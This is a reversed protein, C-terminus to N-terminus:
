ADTCSENIDRIIARVSQRAADLGKGTDIVYNARLRKDADPMQRGLIADLKQVTMGPRALVRTRQTQVDATVVIVKDVRTEGHTEYLLPIDIIALTAGSKRTQNIFHLEKERVLPHILAELRKLEDPKGFVAASLKIRDVKGNVVTGPFAAEIMPGANTEYLEHVAADASYVPIGEDAFMALTTSKGMGISGTLALVIM